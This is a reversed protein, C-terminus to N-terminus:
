LIIEFHGNLAPMRAHVGLLGAGKAGLRRHRARRVGECHKFAPLTRLAAFPEHFGRDAHRRHKREQRRRQLQQAPHLARM